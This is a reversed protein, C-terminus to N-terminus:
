PLQNLMSKALLVRSRHLQLKQLDVSLRQARVLLGGAQVAASEHEQERHGCLETFVPLSVSMPGTKKAVVRKKLHLRIWGLADQVLKLLKDPWSAFTWFSSSLIRKSQRQHCWKVCLELIAEDAAAAVARLLQAVAEDSCDAQAASNMNLSTFAWPAFNKGVGLIGPLSAYFRRVRVSSTAHQRCSLRGQRAHVPRFDGGASFVSYIAAQWWDSVTDHYQAVKSDLSKWADLLSSWCSPVDGQLSGLNWCLVEIATIGLAHIDLREELYDAGFGVGIQVATDPIWQVEGDDLSLTGDESTENCILVQCALAREKKTACAGGFLPFSDNVLGM